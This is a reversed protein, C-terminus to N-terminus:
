PSCGHGDGGREGEIMEEGSAKIQALVQPGMERERRSLELPLQGQGGFGEGGGM